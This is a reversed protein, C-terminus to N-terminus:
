TTVDDPFFEHKSGDANVYILVKNKFSAESSYEHGFM